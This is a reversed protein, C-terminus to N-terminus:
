RSLNPDTKQDLLRAAAFAEEAPVRADLQVRHQKVDIFDGDGTHKGPKREHVTLVLAHRTEDYSAAFLWRQETSDLPVKGLKGVWVAQDTHAVLHHSSSPWWADVRAGRMAVLDRVAPTRDTLATWWAVVLAVLFLLGGFPVRGYAVSIACYAVFGVTAAALILRSRKRAADIAAELTPVFDAGQM